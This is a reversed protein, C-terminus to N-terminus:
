PTFSELPKENYKQLKQNSAQAQAYIEMDSLQFDFVTGNIKLQPAQVALTIKRM